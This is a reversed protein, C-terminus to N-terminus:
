DDVDLLIESPPPGMQVNQIKLLFKQAEKACADRAQDFKTKVARLTQIDDILLERKFSEDEEDLLRRIDIFVVKNPDYDVWEEEKPFNIKPRHVSNHYEELGVDAGEPFLVSWGSFRGAENALVLKQALTLIPDIIAAYTTKYKTDQAMVFTELQRLARRQEEPDDANVAVYAKRLIRGFHRRKTVPVLRNLITRGWYICGGWSGLTGLGGILGTVGGGLKCQITDGPYFHCLLAPAALTAGTLAVSVVASIIPRAWSPDKVTEIHKISWEGQETMAYDFNLGLLTFCCFLGIISPWSYRLVM